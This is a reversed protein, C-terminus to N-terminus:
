LQWAEGAKWGGKGWQPLCAPLCVYSDASGVNDDAEETVNTVRRQRQRGHQMHWVVRRQGHGSQTIFKLSCLAARRSAVAWLSLWVLLLLQWKGCAVCWVSVWGCLRVCMPTFYKQPLAFGFVTWLVALVALGVTWEGRERGCQWAGELLRCRGASTNMAKVNVSHCFECGAIQLSLFFFLAFVDCLFCFMCILLFTPAYIGKILKIQRILLTKTQNVELKYAHCPRYCRTFIYLSCNVM